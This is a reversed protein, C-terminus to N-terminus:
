DGPPGHRAFTYTLLAFVAVELLRGEFQEAGLPPAPAAAARVARVRLGDVDGVRHAFVTAELLRAVSQGVVVGLPLAPAAAACAAAAVRLGDVDGVRHAFVAAELMRAVCQGVVVGLSRAPATAACATPVRLCLGDVDGVRHAVDLVRRPVRLLLRRPCSSRPFYHLVLVLLVSYSVPALNVTSFTVKFHSKTM